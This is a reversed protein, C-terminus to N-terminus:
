PEKNTRDSTPASGGTRVERSSPELGARLSGEARKLKALFEESQEYAGLPLSFREEKDRLLLKRLADVSRTLEEGLRADV